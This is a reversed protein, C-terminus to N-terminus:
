DRATELLGLLTPERRDENWRYIFVCLAELVTPKKAQPHITYLIDTMDIDM